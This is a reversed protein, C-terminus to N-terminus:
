PVAPAPSPQVDPAERPKRSTAVLPALAFAVWTFPLYLSNYSLGNILVGIFSLLAGSQLLGSADRGTGRALSARLVAALFALFALLGLLGTELLLDAFINSTTGLDYVPPQVAGHLTVTGFDAGRGYQNLVYGVNGIGNGIFPHALFARSATMIFLLRVSTTEDTTARFGLSRTTLVDLFETMGALGPLLLFVAATAAAAIGGLTVLSRSARRRAFLRGAVLRDVVVMAAFALLSGRSFNLLLAIVTLALLIKYRVPQDDNLALPILFGAAYVMFLGFENREEFFSRFHVFAVVVSGSRAYEVLFHFFGFAVAAALSWLIAQTLRRLDRESLEAFLLVLYIGIMGLLFVSQKVAQAAYEANFISLLGALLLLGLAPLSAKAPAPTLFGRRRTRLVIVVAAGLLFPLYPRIQLGGVNALAVQAGLALTLIMATLLWGLAWSSRTQM